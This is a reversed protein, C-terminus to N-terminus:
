WAFFRVASQVEEGNPDFVRVAGFSAEVPEDFYFAVSDPQSRVTSGQGPMTREVVAHASAAAPALLLIALACIVARRIM